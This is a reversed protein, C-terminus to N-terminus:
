ILAPTIWNPCARRRGTSSGRATLGHFNMYRGPHIRRAAPVAFKDAALQAPERGVARYAGCCAPTMITGTIRQNESYGRGRGHNEYSSM